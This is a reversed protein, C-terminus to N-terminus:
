RLNNWLTNHEHTLKIHETSLADFEIGVQSCFDMYPKYDIADDHLILPIQCLRSSLPLLLGENDLMVYYHQYLGVYHHDYIEFLFTIESHIQKYLSFDSAYKIFDEEYHKKIHQRTAIEDGMSKGAFFVNFISKEQHEKYDAKLAKLLQYDQKHMFLKLHALENRIISKIDNPSTYEDQKKPYLFDHMDTLRLVSKFIDNLDSHSKIHFPLNYCFDSITKRYVAATYHSLFHLLINVNENYQHNVFNCIEHDLLGAVNNNKRFFYNIVKLVLEESMCNHPIIDYSTLALAPNINIIENIFVTDDLVEKSLLHLRFGSFLNKQEQLQKKVLSILFQKNNKLSSDILQFLVSNHQLLEQVLNEDHQIYVLLTIFETKSFALHGHKKLLDCVLRTDQLINEGAFLLSRPYTKVALLFLEKNNRLEIPLFQFLDPSHSLIHTVFDIDNFYEIPSNKFLECDIHYLNDIIEEKTYVDM